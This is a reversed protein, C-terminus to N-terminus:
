SSPGFGHGCRLRGRSRFSLAQLVRECGAPAGGHDFVMACDNGKRDLRVRQAPLIRLAILLSKCADALAFPSRFPGGACGADAM